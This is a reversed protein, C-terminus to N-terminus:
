DVFIEQRATEFGELKPLSLILVGNEYKATIAASDIKENLGFQRVFGTPTYELRKWTTEEAVKTEVSVSLNQDTIAITFDKKEFGPAFLHLEYKDDSEKVNAPTGHLKAKFREKWAKKRPHEDHSRFKNAFHNSWEKKFERKNYM